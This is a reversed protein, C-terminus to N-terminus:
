LKVIDMNTGYENDETMMNSGFILLSMRSKSYCIPKDSVLLSYINNDSSSPDVNDDEYKNIVTNEKNEEELRLHDVMITNFEEQIESTDNPVRTNVGELLNTINKRKKNYIITHLNMMNLLNPGVSVVDYTSDSNDNM